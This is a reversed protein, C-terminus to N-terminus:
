IRSIFIHRTVRCLNRACAERSENASDSGSDFWFALATHDIETHMALVLRVSWRVETISNDVLLCTCVSFVRWDALVLVTDAMTHYLPTFLRPEHMLLQVLSTDLLRDQLEAPKTLGSTLSELADYFETDLLENFQLCLRCRHTWNEQRSKRKKGHNGQERKARGHGIFRSIAWWTGWFAHLSISRGGGICHITQSRQIIWPMISWNRLSAGQVIMCWCYVAIWFRGYGDRSGRENLSHFKNRTCRWKSICARKKPRTCQPVTRLRKKWVSRISHATTISSYVLSHVKIRASFSRQFSFFCWRKKKVKTPDRATATQIRTSTECVGNFM